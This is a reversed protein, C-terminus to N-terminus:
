DQQYSGIVNGSSGGTYRAVRSTNDPDSLSDAATDNWGRPFVGRFDPVSFTSVTLAGYATGIVAFLASYTTRSISQGNCYLYNTPVSASGFLLISGIPSAGSNGDVYAKTVADTSLTPTALNTIKQSNLSM